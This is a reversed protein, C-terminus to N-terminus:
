AVAALREVSISGTGKEYKQVQQYSVDLKAALQMQSLRHAKRLERINDGIAVGLSKPAM